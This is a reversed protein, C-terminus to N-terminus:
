RARSARTGKKGAAAPEPPPLKTVRLRVVRRPTAELVEVRLGDRTIAEGPKPVYGFWNHVLGAFTSANHREV